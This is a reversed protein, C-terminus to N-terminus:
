LKMLRFKREDTVGSHHLQSVALQCTRLWQQSPAKHSPLDKFGVSKSILQIASQRAPQSVSQSVLEM